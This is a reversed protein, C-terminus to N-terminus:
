AAARKVVGEALLSQATSIIAEDNNRPMWGLERRAKEASVPRQKDLEFLRDRVVPDFVSSLRVLWSPLSLKPVRGAVEPVRERLARAIDKMWYFPGAGIFRRNAANPTCLARVHLDAIDRVDLM